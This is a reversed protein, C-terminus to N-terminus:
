ESQGQFPYGYESEWFAAPVFEVDKRGYNAMPQGSATSFHVNQDKAGMPVEKLGDAPMVNDAAGSDILIKGREATEGNLFMVDLTYVGGESVLDMEQGTKKSQIYSRDSDFIIRNGCQTMKTVSALYKKADTVHYRITCVSSQKTVPAILVERKAEVIGAQTKIVPAIIMTGNGQAESKNMMKWKKVPTM